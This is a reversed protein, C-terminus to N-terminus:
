WSIVLSFLHPTLSPDLPPAWHARGSNDQIFFSSIVSPIFAPLALLVFHGGETLELDENAV